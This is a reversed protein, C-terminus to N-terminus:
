LRHRARRWARRAAAPLALALWSRLAFVACWWPYRGAAVERWRVRAESRLREAERSASVRTPLLRRVVLPEPLNALRTRRALRLWLDYDQAVPFSPDYGGADVLLARRVMVSSHVFLNRRILARRIDADAAPPRVVGWARGAADVERAGTGLVGVEPRAQMFAVQRALRDPAAVDDADLRAVLPARALRLGENLARALGLRETRQVRLRPDALGALIGATGDSSADDVVILELDPMTQDLVSRVAEAVWAAGNHVAMIVSVAPVGNRSM